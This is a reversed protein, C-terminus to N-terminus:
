ETRKKTMGAAKETSGTFLNLTDNQQNFLPNLWVDGAIRPARFGAVGLHCFIFIIFKLSKEPDGRGLSAIVKPLFGKTQPSFSQYFKNV